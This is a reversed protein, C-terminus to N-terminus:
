AEGTAPRRAVVLLSGGAPFSAGAAILWREVTLVVELVRSVLPHVRLEKLADFDEAKRRDTWRAFLLLPLLLSVFSTARVVDFGARRLKEVLDARSYRRKHGGLADQLSWLYAHQPVTLLVGGGPRTARFMQALIAEDETVHEVVDFAGVVDFHALFPLHRADAQLLRAGPLRRRAFALAEAQIDSGTLTLSPMERAAGLLVFGTGCGIEFLSGAEPFYRKLAWLVLRNRARFWFHHPERAYMEEFGYECDTGDGHALDAAFLSIGNRSPPTHRCAPCAWEDPPTAFSGECAPCIWM